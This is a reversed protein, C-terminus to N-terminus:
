AQRRPGSALANVAPVQIVALYTAALILRLVGAGRVDAHGGFVQLMQPALFLAAVFVPALVAALARTSRGTDRRVAATGGAGHANGLAPFLALGLARPAWSWRGV